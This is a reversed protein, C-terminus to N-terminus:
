QWPRCGFNHLLNEDLCNGCYKIIHNEFPEDREPHWMLGVINKTKHKFAEICGDESVALTEIHGPM